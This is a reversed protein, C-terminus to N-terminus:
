LTCTYFTSYVYVIYTCIYIYYMHICNIKHASRRICFIEVLLSTSCIKILSFLRTFKDFSIEIFVNKKGNHPILEIHIYISISHPLIYIYLAFLSEDDGLKIYHISALLCLNLKDAISTLTNKKIKMIFTFLNLFCVLLRSLPLSLAGCSVIM